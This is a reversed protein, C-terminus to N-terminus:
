YGLTYIKLGDDSEERLWQQVEHVFHYNRERVIDAYTRKDMDLCNEFKEMFYSYDTRHIPVSGGPPIISAAIIPDYYVKKDHTGDIPVAEISDIDQEDEVDILRVKKGKIEKIEFLNVVHRVSIMTGVKDKDKMRVFDGKKFPPITEAINAQQDTLEGKQKLRTIAAKVNERSIATQKALLEISNAVQQKMASMVKKEDAVDDYAKVVSYVQAYDEVNVGRDGPLLDIHISRNEEKLLREFLYAAYLSNVENRVWHALDVGDCPFFETPVFFSEIRVILKPPGPQTKVVNVVSKVFDEAHLSIFAFFERKASDSIGDEGNEKVEFVRSLSVVAEANYPTITEIQSLYYKQCWEALTQMEDKSFLYESLVADPKRMADYVQHIVYAINWSRKEMQQKINEELRAKYEQVTIIGHQNLTKAFETGTMYCLSAEINISRGVFGNLYTLLMFMRMVDDGNRLEKVPRVRLFNEVAVYSPQDYQRKEENYKILGHLCKIADEDTKADYLEILQKHYVGNPQYDYFYCPFSKVFQLRKYKSEMEYDGDVSESLLKFLIDKSGEWKAYKTLKEEIKDARYLVSSTTATMIGGGKTLKGEVLAHYCTIDYYRLLSVRVFDGFVVDNRVRSYRSLFINMFRKVHRLTRLQEAIPSAIRDWEDQMQKITIADGKEEQLKEGLSNKVYEILVNKPQVPLPLEYNFYKDTFADKKRHKLYNKLVNNVYEKDYATIFITQRFDGNRDVVKMVELIEKATLRDFDDIFVYVRRGIEKIVDNIVGRSKGVTLSPQLRMLKVVFNSEPLQLADQYRRMDRAIGSHYKALASAYTDFFEQQIDKIDTCTRPNFEVIVSQDKYDKEDLIKKFLNFFSSKGIGWEGAVGVSYSHESLNLVSLDSILTRILNGYGFLDEDEKEIPEDPDIICLGDRKADIKSKIIKYQIIAVQVLPALAFDMYAVHCEGLSFGWFNFTHDFCRYYVYVALFALLWGIHSISLRTKQWNDHLHWMLLLLMTIILIGGIIENCRSMWEANFSWLCDTIQHEFCFFLLVAILPVKLAGIINIIGKYKNPKEEM